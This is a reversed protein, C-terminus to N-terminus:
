PIMGPKFVRNMSRSGSSTYNKRFTRKQHPQAAEMGDWHMFDALQAFIGIEAIPSLEIASKFWDVLLDEAIKLDWDAGTEEGWAMMGLHYDTIVYCNLLSSKLPTKSVRPSPKLRPIDDCMAAVAERMIEAQREKDISSKVWQIKPEGTKSDYLTSVGKVQFGDPVPHTMDHEPSWGSKALKAKYRFVTRIPIDHKKSIETPTLGNTLCKKILERREEVLNVYKIM